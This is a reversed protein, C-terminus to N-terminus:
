LDTETCTFHYNIMINTGSAMDDQCWALNLANGNPQNSFPLFLNDYLPQSAQQLKEASRLIAEDGRAAPLVVHDNCLSLVNTPSLELMGTM